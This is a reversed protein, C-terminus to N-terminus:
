GGVHSVPVQGWGQFGSLGWLGYRFTVAKGAGPLLSFLLGVPLLVRGVWAGVRPHILLHGQSPSALM